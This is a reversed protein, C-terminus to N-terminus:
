NNTMISDRATPLRRIINVNKRAQVQWQGLQETQFMENYQDDRCYLAEESSSPVEKMFPFGQVSQYNGHVVDPQYRYWQSHPIEFEYGAGAEPGFLDRSNLTWPKANGTIVPDGAITEYNLRVTNLFHNEAQHTVPFRVVAMTWVVGHEPIYKRPVSHQFSQQVRGSYQGLSQQDTGNVDYGSAWFTTRKLLTPRQEADVSAKGGFGKSMVDRYRTMFYEREQETHLMAHQRNMDILDITAEDGSVSAGFDAFTNDNPPLPTTWLSKLNACPFGYMGSEDGVFGTDETEWTKDPAWPVKFYNNYIQDYGDVLFKNVGILGELSSAGGSMGFRAANSKYWLKGAELNFGKMGDKMLNVWENDYVHRHPVFFSFIDVTSDVALGRRLPSLRISGILNEEYSDGAIVPVTSLTQLRGIKGCGFVLHSLDHPSRGVSTSGITM